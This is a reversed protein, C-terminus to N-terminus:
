VRRSFDEIMNDFIPKLAPNIYDIGRVYGGSKTAHGYQLLIAVNCGNEIDSNCWTIKFGSKDKEIEYYWSSAARGTDVPTAASLAEVGQKGYKNLIGADFLELCNNLFTETKRLDGKATM